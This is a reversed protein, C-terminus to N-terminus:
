YMVRWTGFFALAASVNSVSELLEDIVSESLDHKTGFSYVRIEFESKSLNIASRKMGARLVDTM